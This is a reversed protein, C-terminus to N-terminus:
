GPLVSCERGVRTATPSRPAMTQESQRRGCFKRERGQARTCGNRPEADTNRAVMASNTRTAPAGAGHMPACARRM